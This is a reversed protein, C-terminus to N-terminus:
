APILQFGALRAAKRDFTLTTACGAQTNLLGILADAFGMPGARFEQLAAEVLPRCEFVFDDSNLLADIYGAIDERSRRHIRTLVWVFECLVICALYCRRGAALAHRTATAAANTQAADDQIILRVLVNTDIGIM